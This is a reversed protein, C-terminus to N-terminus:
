RSAELRVLACRPCLDEDKGLLWGERRLVEERMEPTIALTRAMAPFEGPTVARCLDCQIVLGM